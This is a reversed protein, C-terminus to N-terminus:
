GKMRELEQKIEQHVQEPKGPSELIKTRFTELKGPLPVAEREGMDIEKTNAPYRLVIVRSAKRVFLTHSQEPPFVALDGWRTLLKTEVYNDDNWTCAEVEGSVLMVAEYLTSHRHGAQLQPVVRADHLSLDGIDHKIRSTFGKELAHLAHYREM